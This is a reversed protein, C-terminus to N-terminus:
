TVPLTWEDQLAKCADADYNGFGTSHCVSGLPITQILRGGVTSNLQDWQSQSPWGDDGPLYKCTTDNDSNARTTRMAGLLTLAAFAKTTFM